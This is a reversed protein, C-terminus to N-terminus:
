SHISHWLDVTYPNRHLFRTALIASHQMWSLCTTTCLLCKRHLLRLILSAPKRRSTTLQRSLGFHIFLFQKVIKCCFHWAYPHAVYSAVILCVLSSPTVPHNSQYSQYPRAPLCVCPCKVLHETCNVNVSNIPIFEVSLKVEKIVKLKMWLICIKSKEVIFFEKM